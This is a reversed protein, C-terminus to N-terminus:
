RERFIREWWDRLGIGEDIYKGIMYGIFICLAVFFSRWFGFIVIGLGILLGFVVGLVKSRHLDILDRINEFVPRGDAMTPEDEKRM